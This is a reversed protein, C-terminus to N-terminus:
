INQVANVQEMFAQKEAESPIYVDRDAVMHAGQVGSRNDAEM